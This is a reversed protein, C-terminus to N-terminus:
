RMTRTKKSDYWVEGIEAGLLTDMSASTRITNDIATSDTYGSSKGNKVVEQYANTITQDAYISQGFIAILNSLANREAMERSSAVYQNRDYV